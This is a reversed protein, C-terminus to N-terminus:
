RNEQRSNRRPNSRANMILKAIQEGIRARAAPDDIKLDRYQPRRSGEVDPGWEVFDRTPEGMIGEEKPEGRM